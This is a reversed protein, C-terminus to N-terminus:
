LGYSDGVQLTKLPNTQSSVSFLLQQSLCITCLRILHDSLSFLAGKDFYFLFHNFLFLNFLCARLCLFVAHIVLLLSFIPADCLMELTVDKNVFFQQFLQCPFLTLLTHQKKTLLVWAHLINLQYAQWIVLFNNM